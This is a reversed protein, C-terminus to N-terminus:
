SSCGRGRRRHAFFLVSQSRRKHKTKDECARLSLTPVSPLPCSLVLVTGEHMLVCWVRMLPLPPSIRNSACLLGYASERVVNLMCTGHVNNIRHSRFKGGGRGGGRTTCRYDVEPTDVGSASTDDLFRLVAKAERFLLCRVRPRHKPLVAVHERGGNHEHQRPSLPTATATPPTHRYNHM